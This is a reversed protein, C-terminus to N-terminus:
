MTLTNKLLVPDKIQRDCHNHSESKTTYPSSQVFNPM